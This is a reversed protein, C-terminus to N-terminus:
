ASAEAIMASLKKVEADLQSIQEATLPNQSVSQAMLGFAVPPCDVSRGLSWLKQRKKTISHAYSLRQRYQPTFRTKNNPRKKTISGTKKTLDFAREVDGGQLLAHIGNLLEDVPHFWELHSHAYALSEHLSRELAYSGPIAVILELPVPSWSSYTRLRNKVDDSVGIKIPGCQNVPKLFYVSKTM